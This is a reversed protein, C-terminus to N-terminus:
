NYVGSYIYGSHDGAYLKTGDASIAVAYWARSGASTEQNWTVGSNTSTWLYGPTGDAAVLKTGDASMAVSTWWNTGFTRKTWNVGNNGSTFLYAGGIAQKLGTSSSAVANWYATGPNTQQTWTAGSDYSTYIYGTAGDSAVLRTGDSSSAVSSWSKATSTTRQTWTAGSDASTYIYGPTGDVAVLKTGDSSSAVDYWNRAGASTRQTWSVGSDTSTWLSSWVIAILKTGDASSAVDDARNQGAGTRQTWAVGSTTSTYLYDIDDNSAIVKTGDDSVALSIWGHSGASPRATWTVAAFTYPYAAQAAVSPNISSCANPTSEFIAATWLTNYTKSATNYGRVCYDTGNVVVDIVDGSSPTFAINTNAGSPSYWAVATSYVGQNKTGYRAVESSVGDIDSLVTKDRASQQVGNYAVVSLAVLIGIVIIVIMLEIITFGVSKVKNLSAHM